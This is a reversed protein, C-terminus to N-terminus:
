LSSLLNKFFNYKEELDAISLKHSERSKVLLETAKDGKYKKNLFLAFKYQEGANFTNCYSCQMAVNEPDWRTAYHRRSMFHGAHADKYHLKKNCTCCKGFGNADSDRKRIYESFIKDLKKIWTKRSAKKPM